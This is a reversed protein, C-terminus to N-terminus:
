LSLLLLLEGFDLVLRSAGVMSFSTNATRPLTLCDSARNMQVHGPELQGVKADALFLM